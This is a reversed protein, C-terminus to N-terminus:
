GRMAHLARTKEARAAWLERQAQAEALQDRHAQALARLQCPRCVGTTKHQPRAMCVPCLPAPPESHVLRLQHEVGALDVKGAAAAVRLDAIMRPSLGHARLRRWSQGRPQGLLLGAASGPRRLSIRLKSAQKRVSSPTRGLQDAVVLAGLHGHTRLYAIDATTWPSLKNGATQGVFRM